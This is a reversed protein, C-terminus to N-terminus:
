PQGVATVRTRRSPDRPDCVLCLSGCHLLSCRSLVKVDHHNPWSSGSEVTISRGCPESCTEGINCWYKKRRVHKWARGMEEILGLQAKYRCLYSSCSSHKMNELAPTTTARSWSSHSRAFGPFFLLRPCTEALTACSVTQNKHFFLCCTM